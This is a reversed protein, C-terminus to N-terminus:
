EERTREGATDDGIFKGPALVLTEVPRKVRKLRNLNGCRRRAGYETPMDPQYAKVEHPSEEEGWCAPAHRPGRKLPKAIVISYASCVFSTASRPQKSRRPTKKNDGSLM